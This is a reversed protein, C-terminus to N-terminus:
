SRASIVVPRAPSLFLAAMLHFRSVPTNALLDLLEDDSAPLDGTFAQRFDDLQIPDRTLDSYLHRLTDRHSTSDYSASADHTILKGTLEDSISGDLKIAGRFAFWARAGSGSLKAIAGRGPNGFRDIEARLKSVLSLRRQEIDTPSYGSAKMDRYEILMRGIMAGRYLRERYKRSAIM